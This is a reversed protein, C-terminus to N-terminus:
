ELERIHASVCDALDVGFPDCWFGDRIFEALEIVEANTLDIGFDTLPGDALVWSPDLPVTIEALTEPDPTLSFLFQAQPTEIHSSRPEIAVDTRTGYVVACRVVSADSLAAVIGALEEAYGLAVDATTGMPLWASTYSSKGKADVFTINVKPYAAIQM